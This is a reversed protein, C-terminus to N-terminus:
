VGSKKMIKKRTDKRHKRREGLGERRCFKVGYGVISRRRYKRGILGHENSLRANAAAWIGLRFELRLAWIVAEQRFDQALLKFGLQRVRVSAEQAM